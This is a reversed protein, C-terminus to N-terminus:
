MKCVIIYIVILGNWLLIKYVMYNWNKLLIDHDVTDFAKSFDLFIGIVIDGQDLAETIKDILRILAMHTSKGKRFGFQYLLGHRNIYLILGNYMLRKSLAPLVSAPKYNSFVMDYGSKLIPVMNAVKLESPFIGTMVSRNCIHALPSKICNQILKMIRQQLDNWGAASDKLNCIMKYRRYSCICIINRINCIQYIRKPM